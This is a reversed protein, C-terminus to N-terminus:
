NNEELFLYFLLLNEGFNHASSKELYNLKAVLKLQDCVLEKTREEDDDNNDSKKLFLM